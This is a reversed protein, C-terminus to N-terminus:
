KNLVNVSHEISDVWKSLSEVEMMVVHIETKLRRKHYLKAKFLSFEEETLGLEKLVQRKAEELTM